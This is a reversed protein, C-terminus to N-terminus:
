IEVFRSLFAASRIEREMHFQLFRQMVRRIEMLVPTSVPHVEAESVSNERADQQFSDLASLAAGGIHLNEGGPVACNGCFLGGAGPSFHWVM